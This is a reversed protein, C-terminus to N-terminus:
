YYSALRLFAFVRRHYKMPPPPPSPPHTTYPLFPIVTSSQKPNGLSLQLIHEERFFCFCQLSDRSSCCSSYTQVVSGSAWFTDHLSCHPKELHETPFPSSSVLVIQLSPSVNYLLLQKRAALTTSKTYILPNSLSNEWATQNHANQMSFWTTRWAM